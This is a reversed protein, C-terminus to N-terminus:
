VHEGRARGAAVAQMFLALMMLAILLAALTAGFPWDRASLFQDYILNGIMQQKGGGLLDPTIFNGISLVFVFVAGAAVGAATLPLTIKFFTTIATAGLDRSAEAYSPDLRQLASYIALIVFPTYNYVLGLIIAFENYLIPLPQSIVGVYTLANNIVGVPNLLVIWAYTRILYNTWFPLIALFLLSTQWREPARVIAYAAPYGILLAFATAALAIRTSDLFISLYLPDFARTFNELTAASWNVGGYTGREFFMLVFVLLCPVIMLAALWLLGPAMLLWSILRNNV